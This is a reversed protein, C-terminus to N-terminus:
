GASADSIVAGDFASRVKFVHALTPYRVHTSWDTKVTVIVFLTPTVLIVKFTNLSCVGLPKFLTESM